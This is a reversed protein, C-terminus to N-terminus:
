LVAGDDKSTFDFYNIGSTLLNCLKFIFGETTATERLIFREAITM